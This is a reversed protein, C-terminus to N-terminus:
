LSLEQIQICELDRKWASSRVHMKRIRNFLGLTDLLQWGGMFKWKKFIRAKIM